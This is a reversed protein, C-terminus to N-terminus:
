GNPGLLGVAGMPFQAAVDRLARNKGYEVTVADLTVVPGTHHVRARPEGGSGSPPPAAGPAADPPPTPTPTDTMADQVTIRIAPHGPESVQEFGLVDAGDGSM